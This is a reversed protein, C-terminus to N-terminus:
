GRALCQRRAVKFGGEVVGENGVSLIGSSRSATNGNGVAHLTSDISSGSGWREVDLIETGSGLFTDKENQLVSVLLSKRESGIRAKSPVSKEHGRYRFSIWAEQPLAFWCLNFLLIISRGSLLM